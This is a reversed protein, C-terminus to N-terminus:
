CSIEYVPKLSMLNSNTKLKKLVKAARVHLNERVGLAKQDGNVPISMLLHLPTFALGSTASCLLIVSPYNTTCSFPM